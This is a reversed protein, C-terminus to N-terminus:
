IGRALVYATQTGSATVAYLREAPDVDCALAEGAAVAYGNSSTVDSGGVYITAGGAPVKVLLSAGDIYDGEAQNLVSATTTVSKQTSKFAM